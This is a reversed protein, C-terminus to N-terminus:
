LRNRVSIAYTFVRRLRRDAATTTAGNFTYTQTQATIGNEPTRMLLSVRVSLVRRWRKEATDIAPASTWNANNVVGAATLYLDAQKDATDATNDVGYTIQMDEVGEVLEEAANSASAAGANVGLKQRYLSPEGAANNRIFYAVGSLRMLRTGQSMSQYMVCADCGAVSVNEHTLGAGCGGAGVAPCNLVTGPGIAKSFNGPDHTGGSNHVLTVNSTSANTIQLIAAHSNSADCAVIIEGDQLDHAASLTFTANVAPSHDQVIYENSNDARLIKISDRGALAGTIDAPQGSGAEYGELPLSDLAGFWGPDNLANTTTANNCGMLGAMRIDKSLIEYAFRAGEQQRAMADQARDTQRSGLYIYGVALIVVFSIAIGVLLEILTFGGNVTRLAQPHFMPQRPNM